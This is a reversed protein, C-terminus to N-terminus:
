LITGLSSKSILKPMLVLWAKLLSSSPWLKAETSLSHAQGAVEKIAAAYAM